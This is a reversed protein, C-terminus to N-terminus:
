IAAPCPGLAQVARFLGVNAVAVTQQECVSNDDIVINEPVFMPGCEAKLVATGIGNAEAQHFPTWFAVFGILFIAILRAGHPPAGISAM